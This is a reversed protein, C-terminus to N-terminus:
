CCVDLWPVYLFVQLGGKTSYYPKFADEFYQWDIRKSLLAMEHNPNILDELRTRFLERQNEQLKGLM